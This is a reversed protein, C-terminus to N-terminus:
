NEKLFEDWDEKVEEPKKWNLIRGTSLDIDLEVYDGYHEGPMFNPVYGDYEKIVKGSADTFEAWFMDSCKVNMHMTIKPMAESTAVPKVEPAKAEVPSQGMTSNSLDYYNGGEVFESKYPKM